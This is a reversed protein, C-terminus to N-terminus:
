HVTTSEFANGGHLLRTSFLKAFEIAGKFNLQSSAYSKMLLSRPLAWDWKEKILNEVGELLAEIDDPDLEAIKALADAVDKKSGGLSLALGSTECALGVHNFMLVLADNTQDGRWTLLHTKSDSGYTSENALGLSRFSKRAETLLEQAKTDIFLCPITETLVARM